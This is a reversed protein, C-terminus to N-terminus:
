VRDSGKEQAFCALRRLSLKANGSELALQGKPRQGIRSAEISRQKRPPLAAM